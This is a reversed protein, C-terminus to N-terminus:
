CSDMVLRMCRCMWVCRPKIGCTDAFTLMRKSVATLLQGSLDRCTWVCLPRRQQQVSIVFFFVVAFATEMTILGALPFFESSGRGDEDASLDTQRDEKIVINNICDNM